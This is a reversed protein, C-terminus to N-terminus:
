LNLKVGVKKALQFVMRVVIGVGNLGSKAVEEIFVGNQILVLLHCM